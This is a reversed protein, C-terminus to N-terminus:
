SMTPPFIKWKSEPSPNRSFRLLKTLLLDYQPSGSIRRVRSCWTLYLDKRAKRTAAKQEDRDRKMTKPVEAGWDELFWFTERQERGVSVTPIWEEFRDELM